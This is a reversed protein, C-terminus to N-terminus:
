AFWWELARFMLWLVIQMSVIYTSGAIFGRWFTARAYAAPVWDQLKAPEQWDDSDRFPGM